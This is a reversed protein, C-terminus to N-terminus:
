IESRDLLLLGMWYDIIRRKMAKKGEPTLTEDQDVEGLKTLLGEYTSKVKKWPGDPVTEPVIRGGPGDSERIYIGKERRLRTAPQKRRGHNPM